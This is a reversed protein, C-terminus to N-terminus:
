RRRKGVSEPARGFTLTLACAHLALSALLTWRSAADVMQRSFTGAACAATSARGRPRAGPDGPKCFKALRSPHARQRSTTPCRNPAYRLRTLASSQPDLPRHNSDVRGSWPSGASAGFGEATKKAGMPRGRCRSAAISAVATSHFPEAMAM